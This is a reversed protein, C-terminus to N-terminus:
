CIAHEVSSQQREAPISVKRKGTATDNEQLEKIEKNFLLFPLIYRICKREEQM